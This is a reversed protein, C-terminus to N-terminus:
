ADPAPTQKEYVKVDYINGSGVLQVPRFGASALLARLNETDRYDFRKGFVEMIRTSLDARYTNVVLKGGEETMANLRAVLDHATSADVTHELNLRHETTTYTHGQFYELIGIATVIDYTEIDPGITPTPDAFVDEAQAVIGHKWDVELKPEYTSALADLLRNAKVINSKDRDTIRAAILRPNFGERVLRDYVLMMSLGTGAAVAKMRVTRGEVLHQKALEYTAQTEWIIRNQVDRSQVSDLFLKDWVGCNRRIEPAILMYPGNMPDGGEVLAEVDSHSSTLLAKAYPHGSRELLRNTLVTRKGGSEDTSETSKTTLHLVRHAVRALTRKLAGAPKIDNGEFIAKSLSAMIAASLKPDEASYLATVADMPKLHHM